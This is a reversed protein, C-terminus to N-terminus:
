SVIVFICCRARISGGVLQMAIKEHESCIRRFVLRFNDFLQFHKHIERSLQAGVKQPSMGLYLPVNLSSPTANKSDVFRYHANRKALGPVTIMPSLTTRPPATASAVLWSVLTRPTRSNRRMLASSGRRLQVAMCVTPSFPHSPKTSAMTPASHRCTMRM